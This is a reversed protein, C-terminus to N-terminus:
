GAAETLLAEVRSDLERAVKLADPNGYGELFSAM